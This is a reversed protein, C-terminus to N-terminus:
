KMNGKKMEYDSSKAGLSKDYKQIKQFYEKVLTHCQTLIGDATIYEPVLDPENKHDRLFGEIQTLIVQSTDLERVVGQYEKLSGRSESLATALEKVLGAFAIIDGVSGFSVM